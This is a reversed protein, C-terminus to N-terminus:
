EETVVYPTVMGFLGTRSEVHSLIHCHFAWIGAARSQVIVDYREGPAINLTDCRYPAPLNYGDKAIVLMPQGHLHMPHIMMGENMFRIRVRDGVKSMLPQTYPFSRGNVTFGLFSDNLIYVYDHDYEHEDRTNLPDIIFAGLLGGVVQELSNHHSHYMHSGSNPATFEYTYTEGPLIPGPQTVFPVGDQNNPVDIGHWHVATSQDMQNNIIFRCKDGETVRITPGPIMGNYAFAARENGDETAWMINTCTLEFVKVDGDMSYEIPRSWFIDDTGINGLFTDVKAKHDADIQQWPELESSGEQELIPLGGSSEVGGAPWGSAKAMSGSLAASAGVTGGVGLAKLFKRRDIKSM